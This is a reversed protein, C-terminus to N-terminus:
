MKPIKARAIVESWRQTESALLSALQQPSSSKADV